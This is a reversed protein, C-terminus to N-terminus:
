SEIIKPVVFYGAVTGPSHTLIEDRLNGDSVMDRHLELAEDYPSTLPELGETDIDNLTKVDTIDLNVMALMKDEVNEQIEIMALKGLKQLKKKDM